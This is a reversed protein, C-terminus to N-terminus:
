PAPILADAGAITRSAPPPLAAEKSNAHATSTPEHGDWRDLQLPQENFVFQVGQRNHAHGSAKILSFHYVGTSWLRIAVARSAHLKNKARQVHSMQYGLRSAADGWNMM